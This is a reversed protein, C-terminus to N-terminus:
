TSRAPAPDPSPRRLMDIVYLLVAIWILGFTIAHAQTFAEGYLLVACGLQLTPALYQIMGLTTYRLRRAAGAFALLPVATIVGAGVLLGVTVPDATVLHGLPPSLLLLYGIALPTVLGTEIALGEVAGVPTRKRVLGYLAFSVALVVSVWPLEGRMVTLTVVGIAALAVAVGQLPRLREGLFVRALAVNLLPNIYYGLSAETVRDASVAWIFIFWNTAILATSLLMAGRTERDRLFGLTRRWGRRAFLLVAIFGLSWVIRHTLVEIAPVAGLLKWYIPLLGWLSYAVVAMVAGSKVSSSDPESM